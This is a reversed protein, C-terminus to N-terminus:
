FLHSWDTQEHAVFVKELGSKHDLDEAPVRMPKEMKIQYEDGFYESMVTQTAFDAKLRAKIIFPLGYLTNLPLSTTLGIKLTHTEESRAKYPIYYTIIRIIKVHGDIGGLKISEYQVLALQGVNHVLIPFKATIALLM